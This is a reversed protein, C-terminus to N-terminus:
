TARNAVIIGQAWEIQRDGVCPQSHQAIDDHQLPPPTALETQGFFSCNVTSM